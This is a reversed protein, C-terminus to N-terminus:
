LAVVLGDHAAPHEAQDVRALMDPSMHTLIVREAGLEDRHHHLSRYDLHFRVPREWTYAEAVLLDAGRSVEFLAPTWATDGSYALRREGVELIM